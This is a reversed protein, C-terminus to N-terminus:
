RDEHKAEKPIVQIAAFGIADDLLCPICVMYLVPESPEEFWGYRSLKGGCFKCVNKRPSLSDMFEQVDKRNAALTMAYEQHQYKADSNDM